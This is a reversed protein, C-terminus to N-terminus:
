SMTMGQDEDLEYEFDADQEHRLELVKEYAPLIIKEFRSEIYRTYFEKQLESLYPIGLIFESIESVSIRPVIRLLADNCDDYDSQILFDYYNIKRGNFKIASTPFQFIRSNMEDNNDLVRRMVNEDTQPLLCSGCDYVPAIESTQSSNDYLFGWNGNHRDFNGLFADVVFVNWFHKTLKRPDVFQQKEIAELIDNLEAGNGDHESDIITNKISCFDYLTKGTATFDKCACVIKSKGNVTFTGLLTKQVPIGIMGFINCAIYESFCSNTYSLETPKKVASSPFKLMYQENGFEVAIKKGNAGNYAKGIIRNCATFDIKEKM